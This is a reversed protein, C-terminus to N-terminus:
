RGAAQDQIITRYRGAVVVLWNVIPRAPSRGPSSLAGESRRGASRWTDGQPRRRVRGPPRDDIAYWCAGWPLAGIFSGTMFLVHGAQEALSSWCVVRQGFQPALRAASLVFSPVPAPAPSWATRWVATAACRDVKAPSTTGKPETMPGSATQSVRRSRSGNMSWAPRAPTLKPM